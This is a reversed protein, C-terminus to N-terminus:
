DRTISYIAKLATLLTAPGVFSIVANMFASVFVITKPGMVAALSNFSNASLLLAIAALMYGGVEKDSINIASVVLGLLALVLLSIGMVDGFLMNLATAAGIIIALAFGALFAYSGLSAGKSKYSVM